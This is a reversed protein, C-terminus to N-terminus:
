FTTTSCEYGQNGQKIDTAKWFPNGDEADCYINFIETLPSAGVVQGDILVPPEFTVSGPNGNPLNGDCQIVYPTMEQTWIKLPFTPAIEQYKCTPYIVMGSTCTPHDDGTQYSCVPEADSRCTLTGTPDPQPPNSQSHADFGSACEATFSKPAAGACNQEKEPTQLFFFDPDGVEGFIYGFPRRDSAERDPTCVASTDGEELDPCNVVKYELSKGPALRCGGKTLIAAANEKSCEPLDASDLEPDSTCSLIGLLNEYDAPCSACSYSDQILSTATACNACLTSEDWSATQCSASWNGPPLSNPLPPPAQPLVIAGYDPVLTECLDKSQNVMAVTIKCPIWHSIYIASDSSIWGCQTTSQDRQKTFDGVGAQWKSIEPASADCSFDSMTSATCPVDPINQSGYGCPGCFGMTQCRSTDTCVKDSANWSGGTLNCRAALAGSALDTGSCIRTDPDWTAGATTCLVPARKGPPTAVSLSAIDFTPQPGRQLRRTYGMAQRIGAAMATIAANNLGCTREDVGMDDVFQARLRLAQKALQPSCAAGLDADGADLVTQLQNSLCQAYDSAAVSVAASCDETSTSEGTATNGIVLRTSDSDSGGCSSVLLGCALVTALLCLRKSKQKMVPGGHYNVLAFGLIPKLLTM